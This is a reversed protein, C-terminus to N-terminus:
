LHHLYVIEDTANEIKINDNVKFLLKDGKSVKWVKGNVDVSIMGNAVEYKHSKNAITLSLITNPQIQLKPHKKPKKQQKGKYRIIDDTEYPEIKVKNMFIPYVESEAISSDKTSSIRSFREPKPTIPSSKYDERNDLEEDDIIEEQIPMFMSDSVIYVDDVLRSLRPIMVFDSNFHETPFNFDFNRIPNMCISTDDELLVGSLDEENAPTENDAKQNASHDEEVEVKESKVRKLIETYLKQQVPSFKVQKKVSPEAPSLLLNPSKPSSIKKSNVPPSDLFGFIPKQLKPTELASDQSVVSLSIANIPSSQNNVEPPSEIISNFKKPDSSDGILSTKMADSPPPSPLTWGSFLSFPEM